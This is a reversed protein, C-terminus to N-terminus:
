FRPFIKFSCYLNYNFAVVGGGGGGVRLGTNHTLPFQLLQGLFSLCSFLKSNMKNDPLLLNNLSNEKFSGIYYNIFLMFHLKFVAKQYSRHDKQLRSHVLWYQEEFVSSYTKRFNCYFNWTKNM